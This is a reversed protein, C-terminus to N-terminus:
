RDTTTSGYYDLMVLANTRLIKSYFYKGESEAKECFDNVNGFFCGAEVHIKKGDFILKIQRGSGDVNSLTM